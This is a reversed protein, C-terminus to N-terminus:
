KRRAFALKREDRHGMGSGRYSTACYSTTRFRCGSPSSSGEYWTWRATVLDPTDSFVPDPGVRRRGHMAGLLVDIMPPDAARPRFQSAELAEHSLSRTSSCIRTARPVPLLRVTSHDGAARRSEEREGYGFSPAQPKMHRTLNQGRGDLPGPRGLAVVDM